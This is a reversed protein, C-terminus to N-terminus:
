DLVVKVVENLQLYWINGECSPYGMKKLDSLYGKMQRLDKDSKEGTKYDIVVVGSDKLMVRDPRHRSEGKRLIDRENLVKFNEDFWDAYPKQSLLQQIASQIGVGEDETLMGSSVVQRVAPGIDKKTIIKEFIQHMLTGRNIRESKQNGTLQFYDKSHLRIEMRNSNSSLILPDNPQEATMQRSSSVPIELKGLEFIREVPDWFKDLSIFAEKDLSEEVQPNVLLEQMLEAVNNVSKIEERYPMIVFLNNVARTMAVYLLNLNDMTCFLLERYYDHSFVSNKLNGDCKLLVMKLHSFPEDEPVSWIYPVKRSNIGTEWNCFPIFVTHYELGKSQHISSIRIFNRINPLNLTKNCGSADWWELFGPIGGSDERGFELVMDLFAQLYVKEGTIEGLGFHDAISVALEFLPLALLGALLDSSPDGDLWGEFLEPLPQGSDFLRHLDLSTEVTTSSKLPLLIRYYGYLIEARIQHQSKGTFFRFLNVVFRVVQSQGVKLTDSTIVDYQCGPQPNTKKREWLARAIKEAESNERVLITMEEAKVGAQQVSELQGVLLKLASERFSSKSKAEEPDIFSIRVLGKSADSQACEQRQDKYAEKIVGQLDSFQPEKIESAFSDNLYESARRFLANNFEVINKKSRWNVVMPFVSISQHRLDTELQNALLNWDGNRWRYISQKVDGVVLSSFGSGMANELLPRFNAWQQRSTDQFEDLMFHNYILGIKEYIFPTDNGDIVQGIMRGSDSLLVTDKATLVEKIKLAINGLLGFPYINMLIAKASNIKLTEAKLAVLAQKLM